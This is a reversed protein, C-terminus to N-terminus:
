EFKIVCLFPQETEEIFHINQLINSQLHCSVCMYRFYMLFTHNISAFNEKNIYNYM